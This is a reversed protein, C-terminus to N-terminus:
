FLSAPIMVHIALCSVKVAVVSFDKRTLMRSPRVLKLERMDQSTSEHCMGYFALFSGATM